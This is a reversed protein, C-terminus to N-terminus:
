TAISPSLDRAATLTMITVQYYSTSLLSFFRLAFVVCCLLRPHHISRASFILFLRINVVSVLM